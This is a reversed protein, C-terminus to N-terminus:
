IICTGSRIDFSLTVTSVVMAAESTDDVAMAVTATIEFGFLKLKSYDDCTVAAM